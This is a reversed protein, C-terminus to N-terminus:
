ELCKGTELKTHKCGSNIPCRMSASIKAESYSVISEDQFFCDGSTPNDLMGIINLLTSKGCSSPGMIAVFEGATIEININNLASIEIDDTRYGVSLSHMKLLILLIFGIHWNPGRYEAM